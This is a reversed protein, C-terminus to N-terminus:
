LTKHWFITSFQWKQQAFITYFNGMMVIQPQLIKEKALKDKNQQKKMTLHGGPYEFIMTEIVFVLQLRFKVQIKGPDFILTSRHWFPLFKTNKVWFNLCFLIEQGFHHIKFSLVLNKQFGSYLSMNLVQKLYNFELKM